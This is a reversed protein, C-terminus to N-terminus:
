LIRKHERSAKEIMEKISNGEELLSELKNADNTDLAEKYELLSNIFFDLEFLINDKNELMLETWMKSNLKAVRSIDRFSGASFGDHKLATPSKIYSSSIIHPLQSTYSIIKDHTKASSIVIESFGLSLLFHKVLNASAINHEIPVIIASAKEFLSAIAHNIGSFERGAMPHSAVFNINPYRIAADCMALVIKTKNGAIDLVITNESLKPLYEEMVSVSLKPTLAIILLDLIACEKDTLQYHIAPLMQAKLLSDSNIDHGYVTHETNKIIARGFSGGILGLGIIGINM